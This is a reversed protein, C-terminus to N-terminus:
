PPPHLGCRAAVWATLRRAGAGTPLDTHRWTWGWPALAVNAIFGRVMPAAVGSRLYSRLRPLPAGPVSRAEVFVVRHGAVACVLPHTVRRLSREARLFSHGCGCAYETLGQREGVAQVAHGFLNCLYRVKKAFMARKAYPDRAAEFLLPHGCRLCTYENHGHRVGTRIYTHHRLLCGLVHRTHTVRGDEFLFPERCRSCRPQSGASALIRNDM